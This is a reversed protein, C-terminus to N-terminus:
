IRHTVGVQLSRATEILPELDEHLVNIEGNYMYQLLMELHRPNVDKMFVIPHKDVPRGTL